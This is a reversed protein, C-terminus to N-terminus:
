GSATASMTRVASTSQNMNLRRPQSYHSLSPTDARQDGRDAAAPSQATWSVLAMGKKKWSVSAPQLYASSM